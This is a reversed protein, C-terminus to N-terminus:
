HDRSARLRMPMGAHPRLTVLPEPEVRHGPVRDLTYHQLITALVLQIELMALRDGICLRPGGGFPFYAYPHRGTSREASFREPDFAVPNEWFAPHRHIAYQSFLVVAGAPITYDGIRDDEIARRGIIWIPPYLRLSEQVVMRNYELASLDDVSPLRGSLVRELEAQLRRLHVPHTSLLYWIWTLATATTEHGALLLTMIEDRLQHDTMGGDSDQGRAALLMGLLDSQDSGSRRRAAIIEYVVQDLQRRAKRFALNRPVPVWLPPVFVNRLRYSTDENLTTFATGIIQAERRIDLSFLMQGILRLTLRRMEEAVDIVLGEPGAARWQEVIELAAGTVLPGFAAIQERHFAPQILRRQRLWHAGSSTVLGEGLVPRLMEYSHVAKDYNQHNEKLVHQVHGPHNILYGTHPGIRYFALDGYDMMTRVVFRLPDRGAELLSGLLPLGPPGQPRARDSPPM